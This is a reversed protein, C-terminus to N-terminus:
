DKAEFLHFEVTDPAISFGLGPANQDRETMVYACSVVILRAADKVRVFDLPKISYLPKGDHETAGVFDDVSISIGFDKNLTECLDKYQSHERQKYPALLDDRSVCSFRGQEQSEAILTRANVPTLVTHEFRGIPLNDLGIHWFTLFLKPIM